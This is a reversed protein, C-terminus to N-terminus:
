EGMLEAKLVRNMGPQTDLWASAATPDVEVWRQAIRRTLVQRQTPETVTALWPLATEPGDDALTIGVGYAATSRDEAPLSQVWRAADQPRIRAFEAGVGMLAGHREKASSISQALQLADDLRLDRAWAKATESMIREKQPVGNGNIMELLGEMVPLSVQFEKAEALRTRLAIFDEGRLSKSFRLLSVLGDGQSLISVVQGIATQRMQSENMAFVAKVADDPSQELWMKLADEGLMQQGDFPEKMTLTFRGAEVPDAEAWHKMVTKMMAARMDPRKMAEIRRAVGAMQGPPLMRLYTEMAGTGTGENPDTDWWNLVGNLDKQLWRFYMSGDIFTSGNGRERNLERVKAVAEKPSRLALGGLVCGVMVDRMENPTENALKLALELDTRAIADRIAVQMQMATFKDPLEDCVALLRVLEEVPLTAFRDVAGDEYWTDYLSALLDEGSLQAQKAVPGAADPRNTEPVRPSAMARLGDDVKVPELGPMAFWGVTGGLVVAVIVKM